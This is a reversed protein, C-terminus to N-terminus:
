YGSYRVLAGDTSFARPEGGAIAFGECAEEGTPAVMLAGGSAQSVRIAVGLSRLLSNQEELGSAQDDVRFFLRNARQNIGFWILLLSLILLNGARIVFRELEITQTGTIMLAAIMFLVILATATIATERWSWRVAASLLPLVFFLFFPSTTSNASFVI